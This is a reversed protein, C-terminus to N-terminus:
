TFIHLSQKFLLRAVYTRELNNVCKSTSKSSYWNSLPCARLTAPLRLFLRLESWPTHARRIFTEAVQGRWTGVHPQRRRMHWRAKIQVSQRTWWMDKNDYYKLLANAFPAACMNHHPFCHNFHTSCCIIFWLFGDFKEPTSRQGLGKWRWTAREGSGAHSIARQIECTAEIFCCLRGVPGRANWCGSVSPPM